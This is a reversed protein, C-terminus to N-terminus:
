QWDEPEIQEFEEEIIRDIRATEKRLDRLQGFAKMWPKDGAKRASLKEALAESVLARLPIGQEAAASKAKRFLADPIELTTKM